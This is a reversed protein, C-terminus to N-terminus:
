MNAKKRKKRQHFAIMALGGGSLCALALYGYAISSDGTLPFGPIINTITDGPKPLYVGCDWTMDYGEEDLYFPRTYYWNKDFLTVGDSDLANDDGMHSLTVYYPKDIQFRVRYMGAVLDNFIYYGYENTTTMGVVTWNGDLSTDGSENYELIVPIGALGTNVEDQIGNQNEDFWVYDGISGLSNIIGADWTLDVTNYKLHIIDTPYGSGPIYTVLANSDLTPDGNKPITLKSNFPLDFLIRYEIGTQYDSSKLHDFRYYGNADTIAEAVQEWGNTDPSRMQLYVPVNEIGYEENNNDQLGNKNADFWVYDGLSSYRSAGGDVHEVLRNQPIEIIDTFGSTLEENIDYEIDSDITDDNGINGNVIEYGQPFTFKVQYKGEVLHDFYYRGDEGVTQTAIPKQSRTGDEDDIAYLEVITGHVYVDTGNSLDQIDSYNRDEFAIGTIASYVTLGADISMDYGREGLHIVETRMVTDSIKVSADSDFDDDGQNPTTFSYHETYGGAEPSVDTIDFEVIYDGAELKEFLYYGDKGYVTTTKTSGIKEGISGDTNAKYLNVTVGNIGMEDTDQIGNRNADFWVFDGLAGLASFGADLTPNDEGIYTLGDSGRTATLRVTETKLDEDINSDIDYHNQGKDDTAYQITPEYQYRSEDAPRAFEVYYDYYVNGVFDNPDESKKDKGELPVNCALDDFHYYGDNETTTHYLTEVSKEEGNEYYHKFEHLTVKLGAIPADNEDQFGNRNIDYFAYDGISGRPMSLQVKVENNETRDSILIDDKHGVRGVAVMASNAILKDTFMESESTTYMPAKMQINVKVLEGQKLYNENQCTIEVAIASVYPLLNSDFSNKDTADIWNHTENAQDWVDDSMSTYLMPLEKEVEQSARNMWVNWKTSKDTGDVCYYIKYTAGTPLNSVDVNKLIADRELETVRSTTQNLENDRGVYSDGKFPLLDVIRIKNVPSDSEQGNRVEILYDINGGPSTSGIQNYNLYESDYDGKVYKNITLTNNENVTINANANAYKDGGITQEGIVNDLVKDEVLPNDIDGPVDVSFSNGFPNESSIITKNESNLYTPMWLSTNTENTSITGALTLKLSAGAELVFEGDKTDKFKITVKTTSSETEKLTGDVNVTRANEVPTYTILLDKMDITNSVGKSDTLIMQYRQNDKGNWSSNLSMGIPMDFSIIPKVFDNENNSVNKVTIDYQVTDGPKFTTKGNGSPDSPMVGINVTPFKSELTPFTIQVPNSKSEVIQEVEKGENNNVVFAYKVDATNEILRIEHYDKLSPRCNFTYNIDIGGAYFEKGIGNNDIGEYRVKVHIAKLEPSLTVTERATTGINQVDKITGNPVEKWESVKGFAYSQYYLKAIIQDAQSKGNYARYVSVSDIIWSDSDMKDDEVYQGQSADYYKMVTKTDSVELYNAKVTNKGEAYGRLSFSTSYASKSLSEPADVSQKMSTTIGKKIETDFKMLDKHSTNEFEIYNINKNAKAKILKENQIPYVKVEGKITNLSDDLVYGDPAKIEKLYYTTGDKSADLLDSIGYGDEGITIKGVFDTHQEDKYINFITGKLEKTLASNNKDLKKIVIKGMTSQNIIKGDTTSEPYYNVLTAESSKVEVKYQTSSYEYGKPNDKSNIEKVYYKGPDVKEWVIKGNVDTVKEEVLKNDSTYLGFHVGALTENSNGLYENVDNYKVITINGQAHDIIKGKDGLRTIQRAVIDFTIPDIKAFGDPAEIEELRYQGPELMKSAFFGNSDTTFENFVVTENNNDDIRILRFKAETIAKGDADVKTFEFKGLIPNNVIAKDGTFISNEKGKEIEVNYTEDKAEFGDISKTEKLIYDGQDLGIFLLEGNADTEGKTVVTTGDTKYLTFEVGSLPLKESKSGPLEWQAVKQIKLSGLLDNEVTIEKVVPKTSDTQSKETKVEIFDSKLEYGAPAKIEKLYYTTDAELDNFVIGVDKEYIATKFPKSDSQNKYLGFTTGDLQSIEKNTGSDVKIVKLSQKMVNEISDNAKTVTRETVTYPGFYEDDNLVYGPLTKIEKLYYDGVPLLPSTAVGNADTTMIVDKVEKYTSGSKTYVKFQVGELTKSDDYKDVKTIAFKGYQSQNVITDVESGVKKGSSDIEVVQTTKQNSEIIFKGLYGAKYGLKENETGVSTEKIVYVGADLWNKNTVDENKLNKFQIQGDNNSIGTGVKEDLLLQGNNINLKYKYIEFQVGKLPIEEPSNKNVIQKGFKNLNVYGQANNVMVLPNSAAETVSEYYTVEGNNMGTIKGAQIEFQLPESMTYGSEVDKEKLQYSGAPLLANYKEYFNFVNTGDTEIEVPASDLIYDTYQGDNGKVQLTFTAKLKKDNVNSIKNFYFSGYETTNNIPNTYLDKNDNQNNKDINTLKVVHYRNTENVVLGHNPLSSGDEEIIYLGAPLGISIAGGDGYTTDTGTHLTDVKDGLKYSIGDKTIVAEEPKDTEVAAYVNFNVGNLPKKEEAFTFTKNIWIRQYLYNVVSLIKDTKKDILSCQSGNVQIGVEHVQKDREYTPHNDKDTPAKIELVYYTQTVDLNTFKIQGNKDSTTVQLVHYQNQLDKNTALIALQEDTLQAVTDASSKSSFLAFTAGQVKNGLADVKDGVAPKPKYNKITVESLQGSVLPEVRTWLQSAEYGAPTKTEKLFYTEGPKLFGSYGVGDQSIKKGNSDYIIATGSKITYKLNASVVHYTQDDIMIEEGNEGDKALRYIEFVADNLLKAHDEADVKTIKIKSNSNKNKFTVLTEKGSKLEVVQSQAQTYGESKQKDTLVEEIIYIDPELPGKTVKKNESTLTKGTDMGKKYYSGNFELAGETSVDCKVAKYIKFTFGASIFNVEEQGVSSWSEYKILSLSSAPVNIIPDDYYKTNTKGAEITFEHPTKDLIYRTDHMEKEVLVYDGPEFWERSLKEGIPTGDSKDTRITFIEDEKSYDVLGEVKKYISFTVDLGTKDVSSIKKIKLRGKAYTNNIELLGPNNVTEDTEGEKVTVVQPDILKYPSNDKFIEEVWYKGADLLESKAFGTPSTTGLSKYTGNKNATERDKNFDDTLYPYYKFEIGSLNSNNTSDLDTLTKHVTFQGKPHNKIPERQQQVWSNSLNTTNDINATFSHVTSDLTYEDKTASEKFYYMKGNVLNDFTVIGDKDSRVERYSASSNENPDVEYLRFTVGELPAETKSDVKKFQYKMYPINAIKNVDIETEENDKIVFEVENTLLIYGTPAKTEVLTYKGSSLFTSQAKGDKDTTLTQVVKGNLDKIEFVAGQLNKSSDKVDTKHLSVFGQQNVKNDVDIETARDSNITFEIIKESLQYGEPAEIEKLYYTGADLSVPDSVASTSDNFPIYPKIVIDNGQDDKVANTANKDTYIKFEAGELPVTFPHELSLKGYKHVILKGQPINEVKVEVLENQKVVVTKLESDLTYGTPAKVERYLYTGPQLAPSEVFSNNECNLTYTKLKSTDLEKLEDANWTKNLNDPVYLEFIAGNLGKKDISSQKIFKLKGKNSVNQVYPYDNYKKMGEPYNVQNGKVTVKWSETSVEFEGDDTKNETITYDRAPIGEFLVLGNKDSTASYTNGKDDTLTFSVGALWGTDTSTASSGRKWFAVYGYGNEDTTNIFDINKNDVKQNDVTVSGDKEDIVVVKIGDNKFLKPGSVEKLYYTGYPVDKFTAQGNKDIEIYNISNGADDKAFKTCEKDTYLGFQIHDSDNRYYVKQLTEDFVKTEDVGIAPTGTTKVTAKKTVTFDTHMQEKEQWGLQVHASSSVTKKDKGIPQYTLTAANTLVKQIFEENKHIKYANYNYLLTMSYTTEIAAGKPIFSQQVNSGDYKDVYNIQIYDKGQEDKGMVYDTGEVLTKDGVKIESLQPQGGTPYGDPLIDKLIFPDCNLRGYRNADINEAGPRITIQYNVKYFKEGNVEVLSTDENNQKQVTKKITWEQNAIANIKTSPIEVAELQTTVNGSQESGTMEMNNFIATTGDPTEMNKFHMKLYVTGSNGPELTDAASITLFDTGDFSDVKAKNFVSTTGSPIALEDFEISDPLQINIICSKYQVNDGGSNVNYRLALFFPKGTEISSITSTSDGVTAVIQSDFSVNAIAKESANVQNFTSWQVLSMIMTLALFIVSIKKLLNNIKLKKM